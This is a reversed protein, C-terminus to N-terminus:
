PSLRVLKWAGETEKSYKLRDHLRSHRGQWFEIETPLLRYGGWHPPRIVEKDAYYVTLEELKKDLEGRGSIVRSQESVWAGIQSTKPRSAFYQDSEEHSVKEVRGEIRVQRELEAWFFNLAAYPNAALMQGKESHYNTFFTFGKDDLAKLLVIRSSPKGDPTATSLTMANVELVKAELAEHFWKDFQAFPNALVDSETLTAAQYETRIEALTKM